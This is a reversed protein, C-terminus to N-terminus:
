DPTLGAPERAVTSVVILKVIGDEVFLVMYFVLRIDSRGDRFLSTRKVKYPLHPRLDKITFYIYRCLCLSKATVMTM